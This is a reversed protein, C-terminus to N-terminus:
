IRFSATDAEIASGTRHVATAFHATTRKGEAESARSDV